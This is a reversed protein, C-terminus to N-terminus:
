FDFPYEEVVRFLLLEHLKFVTVPDGTYSVTRSSLRQVGPVLEAVDAGQSSIFDIEITINETVKLIEVSNVRQLGRIVGKYILDRARVPNISRASLRSIGEKVIIGECSPIHTKVESVVASDGIIAVLPVGYYGAVMANFVAETNMVIGNVRLGYIRKGNFTHDLVGGITMGGGAHGFLVVADFEENINQMQLSPRMAGSILDAAPHLEDLLLNEMDAHGECVLIEEAGMDVAAKVAQNVDLTLRRRALEYDGKGRLTQARSVVGEMGEMDVSIYVKRIGNIM